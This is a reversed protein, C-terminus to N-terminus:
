EDPVSRTENLLAQIDEADMATLDAYARDTVAKTGTGEGYLAYKGDKVYLMFMFPFAASGQDTIFVASIDDDCGYVLWPTGRYTRHVPGRECNLHPAQSQPSAGAAQPEWLLTTLLALAIM